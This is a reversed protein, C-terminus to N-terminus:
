HTLFTALFCIMPQLPLRRMDGNKSVYSLSLSRCSKNYKKYRWAVILDDVEMLYLVHSNANLERQLDTEM